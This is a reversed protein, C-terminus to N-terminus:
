RDKMTDEILAEKATALAEIDTKAAMAKDIGVKDTPAIPRTSAIIIVTM